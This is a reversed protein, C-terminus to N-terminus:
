LLGDISMNPLCCYQRRVAPPPTPAYQNTAQKLRKVMSWADRELRLVTGVGLLSVELTQASIASKGYIVYFPKSIRDGDQKATQPWWRNGLIDITKESCDLRGFVEMGCEDFKRMEELVDREEKYLECEGVIHTRSKITGCPCMHACLPPPRQM